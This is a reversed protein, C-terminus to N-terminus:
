KFNIPDLFFRLVERDIMQEKNTFFILNLYSGNLGAEASLSAIDTILFQRLISLEAYLNAIELCKNANVTANQVEEKESFNSVTGVCYVKIM